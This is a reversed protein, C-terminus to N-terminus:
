ADPDTYPDIALADCHSAMEPLGYSRYADAALTYLHKAQNENGQELEDGARWLLQDAEQKTARQIIRREM